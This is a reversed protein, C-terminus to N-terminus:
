GAARHRETPQAGSLRPQPPGGRMRRAEKQDVVYWGIAVFLLGMTLFPLLVVIVFCLQKLLELPSSSSPEELYYMRPGSWYRLPPFKGWWTATGSLVGVNNYLPLWDLYYDELRVPYAVEGYFIPEIDRATGRLLSERIEAAGLLKGGKAFSVNFTPDFIVWRGDILVETTAHTDFFSTFSRRLYVQRARLGASEMAGTFLVSMGSCIMGRGTNVLELAERASRPETAEVTRVQNMSWRLVTVARARSGEGEIAVATLSDALELPLQLDASGSRLEGHRGLSALKTSNIVEPRAALGYKRLSLFGWVHATGFLLALLFALVTRTSMFLGRERVSRVRNSAPSYSTRPGRQDTTM